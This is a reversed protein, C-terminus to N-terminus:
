GRRELQARSGGTRNAHHLLGRRVPRVDTVATDIMQPGPADAIARAIVTVDLQEHALAHDTGSLHLIM